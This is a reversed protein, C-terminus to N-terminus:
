HAGRNLVKQEAAARFSDEPTRIQHASKLIRRDLSIPPEVKWGIEGPWFAKGKPFPIGSNKTSWIHGVSTSGEETRQSDGVYTPNLHKVKAFQTAGDPGSM